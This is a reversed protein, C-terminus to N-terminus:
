EDDEEVQLEEGCVGIAGPRKHVEFDQRTSPQM